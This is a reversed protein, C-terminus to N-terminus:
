PEEAPWAGAKAKLLALKQALHRVRDLRDSLVRQLEAPTPVKEAAPPETLALFAAVSAEHAELLSAQTEHETNMAERVVQAISEVSVACGQLDEGYVLRLIEEAARTALAQPIPLHHM